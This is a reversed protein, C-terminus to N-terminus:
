ALPKLNLSVPKSFSKVLSIKERYHGKGKPLSNVTLFEPLCKSTGGKEISKAEPLAAKKNALFLM